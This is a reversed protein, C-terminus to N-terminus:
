VMACSMHYSEWVGLHGTMGTFVEVNVQCNTILGFINSIAVEPTASHFQHNGHEVMGYTRYIFCTRIKAGYNLYLWDFGPHTM